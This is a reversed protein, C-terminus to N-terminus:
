QLRGQGDAAASARCRRARGCRQLPFATHSTPAPRPMAEMAAAM